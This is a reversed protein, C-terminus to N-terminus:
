PLQGRIPCPHSPFSCLHCWLLGRSLYGVQMARGARWAQGLFHEKSSVEPPHLQQRSARLRLHVVMAKDNCLRLNLALLNHWIVPTQGSCRCLWGSRM